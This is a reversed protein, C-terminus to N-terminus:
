CLELCSVAPDFACAIPFTHQEPDTTAFSEPTRPLQLRLKPGAIQLEQARLADLTAHIQATISATAILRRQGRRDRQLNITKRATIM